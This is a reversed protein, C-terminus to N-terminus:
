FDPFPNRAASIAIGVVHLQKVSAGRDVRLTDGVQIHRARAFTREVVVENGGAGIWRGASLEPRELAPRQPMAELTLRANAPRGAVEVTAFEFPGSSQKVGHTRAIASIDSRDDFAIVHVDASHTARVTQDFPDSASSHLGVALALSMAGGAIIV